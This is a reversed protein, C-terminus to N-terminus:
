DELRCLCWFKARYEANATKDTEQSGTQRRKRLFLCLCMLSPYRLSYLSESCAPRDPISDRDPRSKGCGDLGASSGV